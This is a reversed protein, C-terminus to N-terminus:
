GSFHRNKLMKAVSELPIEFKKASFNKNWYAVTEETSMTVATLKRKHAGDQINFKLMSDHYRLLKADQGFELVDGLQFRFNDWLWWVLVVAFDFKLCNRTKSHDIEQLFRHKEAWYSLINEIRDDLCAVNLKDRVYNLGQQSSSGYLEVIKDWGVPTDTDGAEGDPRFLYNGDQFPILYSYDALERFTRPELDGCWVYGDQNLSLLVWAKFGDGSLREAALKTEGVGLKGWTEPSNQNVEIKM